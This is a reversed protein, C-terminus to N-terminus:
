SWDLLVSACGENCAVVLCCNGESHGFRPHWTGADRSLEGQQAHFRVTQGTPIRLLLQRVDATEEVEVGPHLHFFAKAPHANPTLTDSIVLSHKGLTWQRRHVTGPSLVNLYGDHSCAVHGRELDVDLDRPHARRAVRFGHWVESSNTNAVVLCNHAATGRQRHREVGIGYCSTGSNVLVRQGFLSLEFGLTDAHAHGPQYDPGVPAVDLLLVAQDDALRLYGSSQLHQREVATPVRVGLRDAYDDLEAPLAAIGTAADNFFAINGDPHSMAHLWALMARARVELDLRAVQADMGHCRLVNILDLVDELVLAHYMPSLEFHGGDPLIQEALQAELIRLGRALWAEAEKGSFFCGVFVLAKANSLLHNGLLHWELRKALWRAQIALSHICDAPLAHGGLAYKVWNVIRLSLPYPEWGSGQGPPNTRQWDALLAQHWASRERANRANLDDFYHQNYRWLKDAQPNDWGLESLRGSVSLFHFTDAALLSPERAIPPQWGGTRARLQPAPSLDPRPRYCRFWLRGFLQVPRLHRLTHWYLSIRSPTPTRSM